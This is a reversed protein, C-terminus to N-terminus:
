SRVSDQVLHALPQQSNSRPHPGAEQSPRTLLSVGYYDLMAQTQSMVIGGVRATILFGFNGKPLVSGLYIPNTLTERIPNTNKVTTLEESDVQQVNYSLAKESRRIGLATVVSEELMQEDPILNITLVTGNEQVEATQYGLYSIILM